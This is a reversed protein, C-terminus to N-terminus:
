SLLRYAWPPIHFKRMNLVGAFINAGADRLQDRTAQLVRNRTKESHAVVMVGDALASLYFTEPSSTIPAADILLIGYREALALLSGRVDDANLSLKKPFAARDGPPLLFVNPVDTERVMAQGDQGSLAEALGPGSPRNLLGSLGANGYNADVLLVRESLRTALYLGFQSMVTTVGNGPATGLWLLTRLPRDKFVVRLQNVFFQFQAEFVKQLAFPSFFTQASRENKISAANM